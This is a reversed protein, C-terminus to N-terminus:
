TIDTHTGSIRRARGNADSAVARGVTRLWRWEGGRARVRYEIEIAPTEGRIHRVLAIRLKDADAPHALAEWADMAGPVEGPRYGLMPGIQRSFTVGGTPVDYEWVSVAAAELAVQLREESIRLADEARRRRRREHVENLARMVAPEL